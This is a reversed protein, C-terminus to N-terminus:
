VGPITNGSMNLAHLGLVRTAGSNDKIIVLTIVDTNNSSSPATGDVWRIGNFVAVGNVTCNNPYTFSTNGTLIVSVSVATGNETPANTIEWSTITDSITGLIVKGLSLDITFTENSITINTDFNNLVSEISAATSLKEDTYKKNAAHLLSIPDDEILIKRSQFNEHNNLVSLVASQKDSPINPSGSNLLIESLVKGDTHQGISAVKIGGIAEIEAKLKIIDVNQFNTTTSIIPAM